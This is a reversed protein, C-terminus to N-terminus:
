HESKQAEEDRVKPKGAPPGGAPPANAAKIERKREWWIWIPFTFIVVIIWVWLIGAYKFLDSHRGVNFVITLYSQKLNYFPMAYGYKFFENQFCLALCLSCLSLTLQRRPSSTRMM